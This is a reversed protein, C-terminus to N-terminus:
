GAKRRKPAAQRAPPKGRAAVAEGLVREYQERSVPRAFAAGKGVIASAPKNRAHIFIEGNRHLVFEVLDGPVVGLSRRLEQPLTLQGKATLKAHYVKM